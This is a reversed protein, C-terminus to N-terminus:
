GDNKKGGTGSTALRVASSSPAAAMARAPVAQTMATSPNRNFVTCRIAAAEAAVGVIIM